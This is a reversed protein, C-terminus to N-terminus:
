LHMFTYINRILLGHVEVQIRNKTTRVEGNATFAVKKQSQQIKWFKVDMNNIYAIRMSM